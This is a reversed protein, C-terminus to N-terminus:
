CRNNRRQYPNKVEVLVFHLDFVSGQDTVGARPFQIKTGAEHGPKIELQVENLTTGIKGMADDVGTGNFRYLEKYGQFLTELSLHLPREIIMASEPSADANVRDSPNGRPALLTPTSDDQLGSANVSDLQTQSFSPEGGVRCRQAEEPELPACPLAVPIAGPQAPATPYTFRANLSSKPVSTAITYEPFLRYPVEHLPSRSPSFPQGAQCYLGDTLVLGESSGTPFSALDISQAADPARMQSSRGKNKADTTPNSIMDTDVTPASGPVPEAHPVKSRHWVIQATVQSHDSEAGSSGSTATNDDTEDFEALASPPLLQKISLAAAEDSEREHERSDEELSGSQVLQKLHAVIDLKHLEIDQKTIGDDVLDSKLARWLTDDDAEDSDEGLTLISPERQGARIEAIFDDLKREIRGLAGTGLSALFLTISSAHFALKERIMEIGESGFRVRDWTKKKATGLSEYRRVLQQLERLVKMCNRLLVDIDKKKGKGKRNLLSDPNRADEELEKICTHLSIIERSIEEFEGSAGKCSRYLTWAFTSVALFDGVAFGFSM